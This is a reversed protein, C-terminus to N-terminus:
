RRFPNGEIVVGTEPEAPPEPYEKGYRMIGAHKHSGPRGAPFPLAVPEESWREAGALRGLRRLDREKTPDTLFAFKHKGPVRVKRALRPLWHEDLWDCLEDVDAVGTRLCRPPKAGLAVLKRVQNEWGPKGGRIKSLQTPYALITWDPKFWFSEPKSQGFYVLGGGKYITGYHGPKVVEGSASLRAHPDSFSIFGRYGQRRLLERSQALFWTEGNYGVEPLLIFRNLELAESIGGPFVSTISGPGKAGPEHYGGPESIYIAVGVLGTATNYLGHIVTDGPQINPTSHAYHHDRVFQLAENWADANTRPINEVFHKTKDFPRRDPPLYWRPRASSEIEARRPPVVLGSPRVEFSSGELWREGGTGVTEAPPRFPSTGVPFTRRTATIARGYGEQRAQVDEPTDSLVIPEDCVPCRAPVGGHENFPLRRGCQSCPVDSYRPNRRSMDSEEAFDVAQTPSDIRRWLSGEPDATYGLELWLRRSAQVPSGSAVIVAKAGRRRAQDELGEILERAVGLGAVGTDLVLEDVYAVRHRGIHTVTADVHAAGGPKRARFRM